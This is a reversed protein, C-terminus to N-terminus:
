MGPAAALVGGSVDWALGEFVKDIRHRDHYKVSSWESRTGDSERILAPINTSCSVVTDAHRFVCTRSLRFARLGLVSPFLGFLDTLFRIAFVVRSFFM